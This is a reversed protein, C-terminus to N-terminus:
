RSTRQRRVAQNRQKILRAILGHVIGLHIMARSERQFDFRHADPTKKKLHNVGKGRAWELFLQSTTKPTEVSAVLVVPRSM